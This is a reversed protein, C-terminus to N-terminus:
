QHREAAALIREKLQRTAIINRAANLARVALEDLPAVVAAVGEIQKLLEQAGVRCTFFGGRKKDSWCVLFEQEGLPPPLLPIFQGEVREEPIDLDLKNDDALVLIERIRNLAAPSGAASGALSAKMTGVLSDILVLRAADVTSFLRGPREKKGGFSFTGSYLLGGAFVGTRIWNSFTGNDVGAIQQVDIPRLLPLEWWSKNEFDGNM